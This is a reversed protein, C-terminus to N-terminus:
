WHYLSFRSFGYRAHYVERREIGVAWGSWKTRLWVGVKSM